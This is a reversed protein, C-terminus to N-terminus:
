PELLTPLPAKGRKNNLVICICCLYVYLIVHSVHTNQLTCFNAFSSILSLKSINLMHTSKLMNELFAKKIKRQLFFGCIAHKSGALLIWWFNPRLKRPRLVYTSRNFTRIQYTYMQLELVTIYTLWM